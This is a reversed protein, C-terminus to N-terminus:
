FNLVWIKKHVLYEESVKWKNQTSLSFDPPNRPIKILSIKEQGKSTASEQFCYCFGRLPIFVLTQSGAPPAELKEMQFSGQAGSWCLWTWWSGGKQFILGLQCLATPHQLVLKSVPIGLTVGHPCFSCWCCWLLSCFLRWRLQWLRASHTLNAVVVLVLGSSHQPSLLYHKPFLSCVHRAGFCTHRASNGRLHSECCTPCCLKLLILASPAPGEAWISTNEHLKCVYSSPFKQIFCETCRCGWLSRDCPALHSRGSTVDNWYESHQVLSM